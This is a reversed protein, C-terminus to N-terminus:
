SVRLVMHVDDISQGNLRYADITRSVEQFGFRSYLRQAGINHAFVSLDIWCLEPERRAWAVVTELLNKGIGRGRFSREVGIGLRARHLGSHLVPGTLDVHAVVRDGEFYAWCREWGPADTARRWSDYRSDEYADRDFDHFPAFVIDTGRGSELAHREIHAAALRLQAVRLLRIPLSVALFFGL